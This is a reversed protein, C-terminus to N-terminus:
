NVSHDFGDLILLIIYQTIGVMEREELETLRVRMREVEEVLYEKKDELSAVTNDLKTKEESYGEVLSESQNLQVTLMERTSTEDTLRESLDECRM